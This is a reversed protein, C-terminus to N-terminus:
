IDRLLGRTFTSNPPQPGPIPQSRTHPPLDHLIVKSSPLSLPTEVEEQKKKEVIFYANRLLTRDHHGTKSPAWLLLVLGVLVEVESVMTM